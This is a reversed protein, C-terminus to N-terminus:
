WKNAHISVNGANGASTSKIQIGTEGGKVVTFALGTGNSVSGAVDDGNDVPTWSSWSGDAGSNRTVIRWDVSNTGDEEIVASYVGAGETSLASAAVLTWSDTSAEASDLGREPYLGDIVETLKEYKNTAAM